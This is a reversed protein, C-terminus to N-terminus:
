IFDSYVTHFNAAAFSGGSSGSITVGFNSAGLPPLKEAQGSFLNGMNFISYKFFSNYISNFM